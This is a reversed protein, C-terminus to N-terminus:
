AKYGALDEYSKAEVVYEYIALVDAATIEGDKDVDVAVDYSWEYEGIMLEYAYLADALNVDGDVNGDLFQVIDISEIDGWANVPKADKDLTSVSELAFLASPMVPSEIRFTLEILAQEENILINQTKGDADNAASMAISVYGNNNNWIANTIFNESLFKPAHEGEEVLTMFNAYYLDLDIGWVLAEIANVKVIVKVLSSDAYGAGPVIANDIVMSYQVGAVAPIVKSETLGCTECVRHELGETLITADTINWESWKHNGIESPYEKLLWEQGCLSCFEFLGGLEVCTAPIDQTYREHLDVTIGCFECEWDKILGFAKSLCNTLLQGDKNTHGIAAVERDETHRCLKNSCAYTEILGTCANGEVNIPTEGYIHDYAMEYEEIHELDCRTCKVHTYNFQDCVGNHRGDLMVIDHGLADVKTQAVLVENCRSCHKGETLGSKECTPEVAKDVVEVHGLAPINPIVVYIWDEYDAEPNAIEISPQNDYNYAEGCEVCKWYEHRGPTTCTPAVYDGVAPDIKQQEAMQEANPKVHGEGTGDIVVLIYKQCETCYFKQLGVEECGGARITEFYYGDENAWWSKIISYNMQDMLTHDAKAEAYSYELKYEIAPVFDDQKTEKCVKCEYETYGEANCTPAVTAGAVWDHGTAPLVVSDKKAPCLTCYANLMNGDETCTPKNIVVDSKWNHANADPEGILVVKTTGPVLEGDEYLPYGTSADVTFGVVLKGGCSVNVYDDGYPIYLTYAKDADCNDNTCHLYMYAPAACTAAVYVTELTHGTAPLIEEQALGCRECAWTRKGDSSCTPAVEKPENAPDYTGDNVILEIEDSDMDMTCILVEYTQGEALTVTGLGSSYSEDINNEGAAATFSYEGAVPATFLFSSGWYGDTVNLVNTGIKMAGNPNIKNAAAGAWATHGLSAITDATIKTGCLKCWTIYGGWRDCTPDYDITKTEDVVHEAAPLKSTEVYDCGERQCTSTRDGDASCTIEPIVDVHKLDHGLADVSLDKAVFEKAAIPEVYNVNCFECSWYEIVGEETCSPAVAEHHTLKHSCVALIVVEEYYDCNACVYHALGNENLTPEKVVIPYREMEHDKAAVEESYDCRTCELKGAVECGEESTKKMDHGLAPIVECGEVKGCDCKKGAKNGAATCTPDKADVDVWNHSEPNRNLDAAFKTGCVACNYLNYGLEGHKSEVTDILEGKVHEDDACIDAHAHEAFAATPLVSMLMFCALAIALIRRKM